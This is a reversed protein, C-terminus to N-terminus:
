PAPRRVAAATDIAAAAIAMVVVLLAANGMDYPLLADTARAQFLAAAAIAV